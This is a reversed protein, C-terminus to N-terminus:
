PNQLNTDNPYPSKSIHNTRVSWRGNGGELDLLTKKKDLGSNYGGLTGDSKIVRHCPTIIPIPNVRNAQGVARAANPSGAMHAVEKYSRTEGWPIATLARWVEIHFNPKNGFDLPIDFKKLKLRFYKDLQEMTDQLIGNDTSINDSKPSDVFVIAVLGSNSARLKMWGIRPNHHYVSDINSELTKRAMEIFGSKIISEM